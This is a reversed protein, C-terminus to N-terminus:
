LDLSMLSANGGAAATNTSIVQERLLWELPYIDCISSLYAGSAAHVNVIPGARAAMRRNVASAADGDGELLVSAFSEAEPNRAIRIWSRLSAPLKMIDPALPAAQLLARNGTALAALIQM